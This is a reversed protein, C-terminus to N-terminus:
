LDDGELIEPNLLGISISEVNSPTMQEHAYDFNLSTLGLPMLIHIQLSM